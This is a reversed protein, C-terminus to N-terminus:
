YGSLERYLLYQPLFFLVGFLAVIIPGIVPVTSVFASIIAMLFGTALLRGAVAWFRGEVLKKSVSLSEKADTKKDLYVYQSFYFWVMFVLGPIILLLTGGTVVLFVLLGVLTFGWLDKWAKKYIKKIDIDEKDLIKKVALIGAIYVWYSVLFFILNAVVFVSVMWLKTPDTAFNLLEEENGPTFNLYHAMISTIILFPLLPLYLRLLLAMNEKKFFIEFSKKILTVPGSLKASVNSDLKEM